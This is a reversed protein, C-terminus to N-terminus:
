TDRARRDPGGKSQPMRRQSANPTPPSPGRSSLHTREGARHEQKLERQEGETEGMQDAQRREHSDGHAAARNIDANGRVAERHNEQKEKM